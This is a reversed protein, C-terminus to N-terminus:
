PPPTGVDLKPDFELIGDADADVELEAGSCLMGNSVVGRM